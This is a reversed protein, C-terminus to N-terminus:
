REVSVRYCATTDAAFIVYTLYDGVGQIDTFDVCNSWSQGVPDVTSSVTYMRGTVTLWSLYLQGTATLSTVHFYDDADVMDTCAIEEEADTFRDGDTDARASIFEYAGMDPVASGDDDGDLPRPVGRLDSAMNIDLGQDVCPSNTTLRFDAADRDRFMPPNTTNGIGGDPEGLCCYDTDLNAYQALNNGGNTATNYYVIANILIGDFVGGGHDEADNGVITSFRHNADYSGGGEDGCRNAFVLTNDADGDYLGGGCDVAMNSIVQCGRLSSDYAGGGDDDAVNGLILSDYGDAKAVGGGDVAAHNTALRCFFVASYAVGGGLRDAHNTAVECNFLTSGYAGGGDDGSLNDHLVSSLVLGGYVGGGDLWSSCNRVVCNTLAGETELWAGGGAQATQEDGSVRTYGNSLTFGCLVADAGLYVCRVATPGRPGAGQIVTVLPGDVSQVRVPNTVAVRNMAQGDVSVEGTAYVGNSVLVCDGPVLAASVASQISTAAMVWNTFPVQHLGGPAVHYVMQEVVTVTVTVASLGENNWVTLVVDYSGTESYAHSPVCINATTSGDDWQWSLGTVPNDSNGKLTLAYGTAVTTYRSTVTPLLVGVQGASNFQDCGLDVQGAEGMADGDLDVANTMWDAYLAV